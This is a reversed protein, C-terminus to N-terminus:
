RNWRKENQVDCWDLENFSNNECNADTKRLVKIIILEPTQPRVGLSRCNLLAANKHPDVPYTKLQTPPPPVPPRSVPLFPPPLHVPPPLLPPPFRSFFSFNRLM